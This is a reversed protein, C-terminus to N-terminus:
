ILPNTNYEKSLLMKLQGYVPLVVTGTPQHLVYSLDQKEDKLFFLYLYKNQYNPVQYMYVPSYIATYSGGDANPVKVLIQRGKKIAELATDGYYSYNLYHNQMDYDLLLPSSNELAALREEYKEYSKVETETYIYDAPKSRGHVIFKEEILTHNVCYAYVRITWDEQLLINPVNAFRKGNEEYVETILSCDSTRNCFHVETISSDEIILRQNIDWQYFSLRGNEIKFM